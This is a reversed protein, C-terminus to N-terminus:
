AAEKMTSAFISLQLDSNGLSIVLGSKKSIEEKNYDITRIEFRDSRGHQIRKIVNSLIIHSLSKVIDEDSKNNLDPKIQKIKEYSENKIIVSFYNAVNGMKIHLTSYAPSDFIPESKKKMKLDTQKIEENGTFSTIFSSTLSIVHNLADASVRNKTDGMKLQTKILESMPQFQCPKPVFYVFGFEDLENKREENGSLVIVPTNENFANHRVSTIFAMGEKKPMNLDTIICDFMQCSIKSTAEMGNQAQIVEVKNGFSLKILESLNERIDPEDDVVLIWKRDKPKIEM